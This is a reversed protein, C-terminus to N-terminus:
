LGKKPGDGFSEAHCLSLEDEHGGAHRSEGAAAGRESRLAV